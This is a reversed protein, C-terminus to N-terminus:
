LHAACQATITDAFPLLDPRAPVSDSHTRKRGSGPSVSPARQAGKRNSNVCSAASRDVPYPRLTLWAHGYRRRRSNGLIGEVRKEAAIRMADIVENRDRDALATSSSVDRILSVISPTILRPKREVDDPSLGELPDRCTSEVEALVTDSVRRSTRNALLVAFSPFLVHGPHDDSSWGLGLQRGGNKPCRALAEGEGAGDRSSRQSAALAATTDAHSRCAM